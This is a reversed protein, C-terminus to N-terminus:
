VAVVLGLETAPISRDGMRDSRPILHVLSLFVHLRMFFVTDKCALPLIWPAPVLERVLRLLLTNPAALSALTILQVNPPLAHALASAEVAAGGHKSQHRHVADVVRGGNGTEFVLVPETYIRDALPRWKRAAVTPADLTVVHKGRIVLGPGTHEGHVGRSAYSSIFETEDLPEGVGRRDDHTLRRHVMLELQGDVLSGVGQSADVLVTLQAKEDRIAAAANCPFYNGAVEETQNLKGAWRVFPAVSLNSALRV